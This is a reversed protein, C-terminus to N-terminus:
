EGEEENDVFWFGLRRLIAEKSATGGVCIPHLYLVYWDCPDVGPMWEQPTSLAYM